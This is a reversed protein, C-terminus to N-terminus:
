CLDFRVTKIAIREGLVRDFAEYVEGMGGRGLGRVIEFRGVLLQGPEFVRLRAIVSSLLGPHRIPPDDLLGPTSKAADFNVLLQQLATRTEVDLADLVQGREANPVDTLSDFVEKVKEWNNSMM